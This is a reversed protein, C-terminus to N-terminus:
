LEPNLFCSSLLIFEYKLILLYGEKIKNQSPVLVGLLSVVGTANTFSSYYVSKGEASRGAVIFNILM